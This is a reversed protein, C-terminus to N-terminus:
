CDKFSFERELAQYKAVNGAERYTSGLHCVSQNRAVPMANVSMEFMLIASEIDKVDLLHIMGYYQYIESIGQAPLQDTLQELAAGAISLMLTKDVNKGSLFITELTALKGPFTSQLMKVRELQDPEYGATGFNLGYDVYQRTVTHLLDYAFQKEHLDIILDNTYLEIVYDVFREIEPVFVFPPSGVGSYSYYLGYNSVIDQRGDISFVPRGSSNIFRSVAKEMEEKSLRAATLRNKFILSHWNYLTIDPRVEMVKNLFGFPGIQNDGRLFLIADAPLSNLVLNAYEEVFGLKSRDAKPYNYFAISLVMAVTLPARYGAYKEPVQDLLWVLGMAFWLAVPAYAVVTYARFVAQGRIEFKSDMLSMLLFTTSFLVLMLSATHCYHLKRVSRYIGLLILPIAILGLQLSSENMLWRYFLLKDGPVAGEQVDSYYARSVYNFFEEYPIAGVLAIEPSPDTFLSVYPSLGLIFLCISALWFSVSHMLEWLRLRMIILLSVFGLCSLVFLPWHNSIALGAAFCLGYWYRSDGTQCFKLLLWWCLMFMCAALSYVEIIIAQSWFASSLAYAFAAVLATLEHTTVLVAIEYFLAVAALAFVVSILNGVIVSPAVMMQNCLLTFLPYGPPHSMGGLNCVMQFLGADELTISTPMTSVYLFASVFVLPVVHTWRVKVNTEELKLQPSQGPELM